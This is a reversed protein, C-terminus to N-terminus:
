RKLRSADVYGRTEGDARGNWGVLILALDLAIMAPGFKERVTLPHRHIDTFRPLVRLQSIIIKTMIRRIPKFQRLTAIQHDVWFRFASRDIEQNIRQKLHVALDYFGLGSELEPANAGLGSQECAQRSSAHPESGRANWCCRDAVIRCTCIRAGADSESRAATTIRSAIAKRDTM